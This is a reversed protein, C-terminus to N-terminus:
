EIEERRDFEEIIRKKEKPGEISKLYMERRFASSRSVHEEVYILKLPKRKRTSKVKGSNHAELRKTVDERHGIYHQGDKVSKLIYVFHSM